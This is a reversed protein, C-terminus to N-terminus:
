FKIEGTNNGDAPWRSDQEHMYEHFRRGRIYGLDEVEILFLLDDCTPCNATCGQAPRPWHAPIPFSHTPDCDTQVTDIQLVAAFLRDMLKRCEACDKDPMWHGGEETVQHQDHQATTDSM